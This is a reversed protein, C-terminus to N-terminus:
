FPKLIRTRYGVSKLSWDSHPRPDDIRLGVKADVPNSLDAKAGSRMSPLGYDAIKLAFRSDVVCNTSKLHGHSGIASNHLYHMGLTSRQFQINETGPRDPGDPQNQGLLGHLESNNFICVLYM